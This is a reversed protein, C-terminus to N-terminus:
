SAHLGGLICSVNFYKNLQIRRRNDGLPKSFALCDQVTFNVSCSLNLLRADNLRNLHLIESSFYFCFKCFTPKLLKRPIRIRMNWTLKKNLRVFTWQIKWRMLVAFTEQLKFRFESSMIMIYNINYIGILSTSYIQVKNMKRKCQKTKLKKSLCFFLLVLLFPM